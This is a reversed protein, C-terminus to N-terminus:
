WKNDQAYKKWQSILGKRDKADFRVQTLKELADVSMAAVVPDRDHLYQVFFGREDAQPKQTLYRMMQPRIWLSSKGNFNYNKALEKSFIRRIDSNQLRMLIDAAASRVVLAKDSMLEKAKDYVLDTGMKDLAVLAANRMYWDKDKTFSLIKNLEAGEAVDSAQLLARWRTAMSLAPNKALKYHEDFNVLGGAASSSDSHAANPIAAQIQLASLSLAFSLLLKSM